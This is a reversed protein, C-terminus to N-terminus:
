ASGCKPHNLLISYDDNKFTPKIKFRIFADKILEQALDLDEYNTCIIADHLTLVSKKMKIMKRWVTDIMLEAEFQQLRIAFQSHDRTPDTQKLQWIIDYVTPFTQRFNTRIKTPRNSNKSFWIEAFVKKKFQSRDADNHFMQNVQKAIHEYFMGTEALQQFESVDQPLNFLGRGSKKSWYKLLLPVTLLIQSNSIDTMLMPQGDFDIFPRHLRPLNTLNTYVRSKLDPRVAFFRKYFISFLGVDIPEMAIQSSSIPLEGYKSKLYNVGLQNVTVKDKLINLQNHFYRVDNAKDELRRILASDYGNYDIQFYRERELNEHLQYLSSKVGPQHTQIKRIFQNDILYRMVRKVTSSTSFLETLVTSSMPVGKLYTERRLAHYYNLRHIIYYYKIETALSQKGNPTKIEAHIKDM